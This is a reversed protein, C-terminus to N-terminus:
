DDEPHWRAELAALEEPTNVNVFGAPDAIGCRAVGLTGLWGFVSRGGDALYRAASAAAERRVLLFLVQDRIGDNPIVADVAQGAEQLRALLRSVLDRALTPADGPCVFLLDGRCATAAAALGALPGLGATADAVVRAGLAEYRERHRNASVVVEDVQGSLRELVHAVLPKGCLEVLPKDVGGFRRGTGGCLVVGSIM